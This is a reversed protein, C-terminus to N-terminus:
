HVPLHVFPHITIHISLLPTFLDIRKSSRTTSSDPYVQVLRASINLGFDQFDNYLYDLNIGIMSSVVTETVPPLDSNGAKKCLILLSDLILVSM